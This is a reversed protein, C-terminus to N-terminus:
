SGDKAIRLATRGKLAEVQHTEEGHNRHNTTYDHSSVQPRHGRFRCSQSGHRFGQTGSQLGQGPKVSTTHDHGNDLARDDNICGRRAKEGQRLIVGEAPRPVREDALHPEEIACRCRTLTHTNPNAGPRAQRHLDNERAKSRRRGHCHLHLAPRPEQGLKSPGPQELRPRIPACLHNKAVGERDSPVQQAWNDLRDDRPYKLSINASAQASQLVTGLPAAQQVSQSLGTGSMSEASWRGSRQYPGGNLLWNGNVSFWYIEIFRQVWREPLYLRVMETAISRSGPLTGGPGMSEM